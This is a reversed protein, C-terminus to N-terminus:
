EVRKIEYRRKKGDTSFTVTMKEDVVLPNWGRSKAIDDVLNREKEIPMTIDNITFPANPTLVGSEEEM